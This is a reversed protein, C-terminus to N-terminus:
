FFSTIRWTSSSTLWKRRRFVFWRSWRTVVVLDGTRSFPSRLSQTSFRHQLLLTSFFRM